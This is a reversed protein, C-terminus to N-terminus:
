AKLNIKRSSVLIQKTSGHIAAKIWFDGGEPEGDLKEKKKVEKV